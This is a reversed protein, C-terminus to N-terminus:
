VVVLVGGVELVPVGVVEARLDRPEGLDRGGVALEASGAGVGRFGPRFRHADRPSTLPPPWRSEKLLTVARPGFRSRHGGAGRTAPAALLLAMDLAVARTKGPM